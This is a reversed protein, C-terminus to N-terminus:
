KGQVLKRLERVERQLRAVKRDRKVERDELANIQHSLIASLKDYAITLEGRENRRVLWPYLRRVEQAIFGIDWKGNAIWQYQRPTLRGNYVLNVINKKLREDSSMAFDPAYLTGDASFSAYSYGPNNGYRIGLSGNNAGTEYMLLDDDAGITVTAFHGPSDSWLTSGNRRLMPGGAGFQLQAQNGDQQGRLGLTNAAGVDWLAVDDGVRYKEGDSGNASVFVKAFIGEPIFANGAYNFQFQNVESNGGQPRLIIAGANAAGTAALVLNTGVATIREATSMSNFAVNAGLKAYESPNISATTLMENWASWTGGYRGRAFIRSSQYVHYTQYVMDNNSTLYVELKGALAVPYNSGGQAGANLRQAYLGASVVTNLDVAGGLDGRDQFLTSLVSSDLKGAPNFNGAHWVTQDNITVATGRLNLPAFASADHTVADYNVGTTGAPMIRGKGTSGNDVDFYVIGTFTPDAIPAKANLATQLGNTKAITLAADAIASALAVNGSGDFGVAAATVPGTMSFNRSAALKTAAAATGTSALKGDLAGQLGNVKAISLANDAIATTISMNGSGNFAVSGTVLGTLSLTRNAPWVSPVGDSKIQDVEQQLTGVMYQRLSSLSSRKFEGSGDWVLSFLSDTPTAQSDLLRLSTFSLAM